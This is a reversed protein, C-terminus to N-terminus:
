QLNWLVPQTAVKAPPDTSRFCSFSVCFSISCLPRWCMVCTTASSGAAAATNGGRGREYSNMNFCLCSGGATLKCLEPVLIQGFWDCPPTACIVLSAAQSFHLSFIFCESSISLKSLAIFLNQANIYQIKSFVATQLVNM